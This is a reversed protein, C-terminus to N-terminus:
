DLNPIYYRYDGQPGVRRLVGKNYLIGLAQSVKRSQFLVGTVKKLKERTDSTSRAESFFGSPILLEELYRLVEVVESKGRRRTKLGQEPFQSQYTQSSFGSNVLRESAGRVLSLLEDMHNMVEERSEAELSFEAVGVRISVRYRIM